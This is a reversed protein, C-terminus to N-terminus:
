VHPPNTSGIAATGAIGFLTFFCKKLKKNAVAIGCGKNKVSILNKIKQYFM